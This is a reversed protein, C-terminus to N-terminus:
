IEFELMLNADPVEIFIYGDPKLFNTLNQLVKIAILIGLNHLYLLM